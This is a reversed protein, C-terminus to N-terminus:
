VLEVRKALHQLQPRPDPYMNGHLRLVELDFTCHALADVIETSARVDLEALQPLKLRPLLAPAPKELALEVSRLRPLENAFVALVQDATATEPWIRLRLQELKPWHATALSALLRPDSLDFSARRLNPLAIDGLAAVNSVDIEELLTLRPWIPAISTVRTGDTGSIELRRLSRPAHAALVGVLAAPEEAWIKRLDVLFRGSPHTLLHELFQHMPMRKVRALEAKYVFGNRWELQPAERGQMVKALPGLFQERHTAFHEGLRTELHELKSRDTIRARTMQLRILTARPDHQQELWDAYVRYGEADDPAEEILRTLDETM